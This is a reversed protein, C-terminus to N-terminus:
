EPISADGEIREGLLRRLTPRDLGTAPDPLPELLADMLERQPEASLRDLDIALGEDEAITRGAIQRVASYPDALLVAFSSRLVATKSAERTPGHGMHWGAIARQVPDGRLMWVAGAPLQAIEPPLDEPATETGYWEALREATWGVSRDLHCLNCANPSQRGGLGTARPSAMLHSRTASLLGYSTYPMHCGLCDSGTSGPDHHTHDSGEAVVERHCSGCLTSGDAGAALQDAPEGGHVRHCSICSMEGQLYCASLTMADYERGAVRPRGDRWFAEVVDRVDDELDAPDVVDRARAAAGHMAAFDLHAELPQGPEFAESQAVRDECATHCVGCVSSSREHDLRRPNVVTGDGGSGLHLRYRHVPSRNLRVHEEAPGHCRECAIGLEAVAADGHLGVTDPTWPGGTSHCNVCGESWVAAEAAEDAPAQLFSDDNAVWRADEILWVFPLQELRGDPATVWYAQMHHSGTTMVVRRPEGTAPVAADVGETSGGAAQVTAFFRDGERWVRSRLGFGELSRGDFAARVSGPTARQTMTRHFSDHWTDYQGPHCARCADSSAFGDRAGVQPTRDQLDVDPAPPVFLTVSTAAVSGGLSLAFFRVPWSAGRAALAGVVGGALTALAFGLALSM